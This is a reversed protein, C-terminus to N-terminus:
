KQVASIQIGTTKRNDGVPGGTRGKGDVDLYMLMLVHLKQEVSGFSAKTNERKTVRRQLGLPRSTTFIGSSWCCNTFCDCRGGSVVMNVVDLTM